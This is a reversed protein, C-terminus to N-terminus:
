DANQTSVLGLTDVGIRINVWFTSNRTVILLHIRYSSVLFWEIKKNKIQSLQM